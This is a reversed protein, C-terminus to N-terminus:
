SLQKLQELLTRRQALYEVRDEQTLGERKEFAEDLQAIALIVAKRGPPPRPEAPREDFPRRSRYAFVGAGGLVAALVM